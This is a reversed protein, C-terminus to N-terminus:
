MQLCLFSDLLTHVGIRYTGCWKVSIPAAYSPVSFGDPVTKTGVCFSDLTTHVGIRYTIFWKISFARRLKTCFRWGTYNEHRRLFQGTYYSCKDCKHSEMKFVARRLM